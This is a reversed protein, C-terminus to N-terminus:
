KSSLFTRISMLAREASYAENATLVEIDQFLLGRGVNAFITGGIHDISNIRYVSSTDLTVIYDAKILREIREEISIM